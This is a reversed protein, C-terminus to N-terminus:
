KCEPYYYNFEDDTIRVVENESPTGERSVAYIQWNDGALQSSFIVSGGDGSFSPSQNPAVNRTIPTLRGDDVYKFWIDEKKGKGTVYLLGVGQPDVITSLRSNEKAHAIIERPTGDPLELLYIKHKDMRELCFYIAKGDPSFVIPGGTGDEFAALTRDTRADVNLLRLNDKGDIRSFYAIFKGDPSWAPFTDIEPNETLREPDSGDAGMAYLEMNGDRDSVFAVRERVQSWSPYLDSDDNDTLKRIEGLGCDIVYIENDGDRDSFVVMEAMMGTPPNFLHVSPGSLPHSPSPVVEAVPPPTPSSSPAMGGIEPVPMPEPISQCGVACLISVAIFYCYIFNAKV